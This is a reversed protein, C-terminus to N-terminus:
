RRPKNLANPNNAYQFIIFKLFTISSFKPKSSNEFIGVGLLFNREITLANYPIKIMTDKIM